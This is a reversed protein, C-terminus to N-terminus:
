FSRGYMILNWKTVNYHSPLKESEQYKHRLLVQIDKSICHTSKIEQM